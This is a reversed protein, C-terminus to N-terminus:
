TKPFRKNTWDRIYDFMNKTSNSYEGPTKECRKCPEYGHLAGAVVAFVKDAAASREFMIEHDRIFKYGGMAMYLSPAKISAVACTTSNITSCYDIDLLSDRSRVAM